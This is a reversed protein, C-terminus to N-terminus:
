FKDTVDIWRVGERRRNKNRKKIKIRKQYYEMNDDFKKIFIKDMNMSRKCRLLQFKKTESRIKSEKFIM